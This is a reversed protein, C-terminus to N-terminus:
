ATSPGALWRLRIQHIHRRIWTPSATGPGGPQVPTEHGRSAALSRRYWESDRCMQESRETAARCILDPHHLM